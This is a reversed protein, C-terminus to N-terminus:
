KWAALATALDEDTEDGPLTGFVDLDATDRAVSDQGSSESSATTVSLAQAPRHHLVLLAARHM